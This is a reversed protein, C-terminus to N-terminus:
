LLLGVVALAVGLEITAGLVDGTMGGMRRACHRTFLWAFAAVCVVIAVGQVVAAPEMQGGDFGNHGLGLPVTAVLAVLSWVAISRYQTGAVLAGFGNPHAPKLSRRTGIVAGLRAVAVAFVIDYWRSREALGAFGVAQVGLTLTLTAVGFPGVTGSRMVETVREPPGYCGLGDATDALGDLHMGRTLVALLAVVLVGTLLAPADTSSLLFAAAAATAGLVAGVVPLASMAAGGVARDPTTGADGVPLVTMWSVATRVASVPSLM